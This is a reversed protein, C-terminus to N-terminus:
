SIKENYYCQTYGEYGRIIGFKYTTTKAICYTSKLEFQAPQPQYTATKHSIFDISKLSQM